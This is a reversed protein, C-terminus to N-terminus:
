SAGPPASNPLPTVVHTGPEGAEGPAQQSGAADLRRINEAKVDEVPKEPDFVRGLMFDHCVKEDVQADGQGNSCKCIVRDGLDLELCGEIRPHGQVKAVQDYFPASWLWTGVRPVFDAAAWHQATRTDSKSVQSAAPVAAQKVQGMSGLKHAAFWALVGIALLSGVLTAVPKIPFDKKVTHIEASKYWAFHEKPFSWKSVLAKSQEARDQPNVAVEWQKVTSVERGFKRELHVHRGVLKRVAIDLLQPHQTILFVDFGRHRHTEFESVHRPVAAGQKRPPFTRQCEDLVVISGDPLTPWSQPDDLVEWPLTLEPIGAQYVTRGSSLRLAEVLGLTYLTKGNGPQGTVLTLM